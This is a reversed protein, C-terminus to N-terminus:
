ILPLAAKAVTSFFGFAKRVAGAREEKLEKEFDNLLQEIEDKKIGTAIKSSVQKWTQLDGAVDRELDKLDAPLSIQNLLAGPAASQAKEFESELEMARGHATDSVKQLIQKSAAPGSVKDAHRKIVELDNALGRVSQLMEDRTM